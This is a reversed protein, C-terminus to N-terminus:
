QIVAGVMGGSTGELTREGGRKAPKVGAIWKMVFVGGRGKINCWRKELCHKGWFGYMSSIVIAAVGLV